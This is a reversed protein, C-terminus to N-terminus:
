YCPKFSRLVCFAHGDFVQRNDNTLSANNERTDTSTIFHCTVNLLFYHLVNCCNGHEKPGCPWLVSHFVVLLGNPSLRLPRGCRANCIQKQRRMSTTKTALMMKKREEVFSEDRHSNWSLREGSRGGILLRPLIIFTETMAIVINWARRGAYNREQRKDVILKYRWGKHRCNAPSVYTYLTNDGIVLPGVLSSLWLTEQPPRQDTQHRLQRHSTFSKKSLKISSNKRTWVYIEGWQNKEM